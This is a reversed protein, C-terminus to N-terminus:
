RGGLQAAVAATHAGVGMRLADSLDAPTDVDRRLSDLGAGALLHAGGALHLGLSGPGYAPSFAAIASAAYLTTGSGAADSVVASPFSSARALAHTLEASRLAPLDASLAGIGLGPYREAAHRGGYALAPNLGADPEDALVLAGIDGLVCGALADDTVVFVAAVAPSALAATVTDAAFALALAERHPGAVAALRSKALALRKVPVVLCWCSPPPAHM